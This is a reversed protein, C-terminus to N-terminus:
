LEKKFLHCNSKSAPNKLSLDLISNLGFTIVALKEILVMGKEARGIKSCGFDQNGRLGVSLM